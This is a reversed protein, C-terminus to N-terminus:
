NIIESFLGTYLQDVDRILRKQTYNEKVFAKANQRLKDTFESDQLLKIINDAMGSADNSKCLLGNQNDLLLDAVGGVDTAVVPVGSAMAEIVTFPTGETTSSQALLDIGSYIRQIHREWGLFHVYGNLGLEEQLKVIKGREEGDGVVCLHVNIGADRLKKLVRIMLLHNKTPVLRGIIGILKDGAPIGLSEKLKNNKQLNLFHELEVGLKVIVFKKLPAIKFKQSLEYLQLPSIAIIRTTLLALMKEIYVFIESKFKSFFEEFVHGHFTHIIIPVGALWAALRGVAGAKATHTDVIDPKESRILQYTKYFSVLDGVISVNRKMENVVRIDVGRDRIEDFKSLEGEKLGGGVLIVQYRDKPLNQAIMETHIAPGGICIRSQILLIKIRRNRM